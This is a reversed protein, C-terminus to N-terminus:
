FQAEKSHIFHCDCNTLICPQLSIWLQRLYHEHYLVCYGISHFSHGVQKVFLKKWRRSEYGHSNPFSALFVVECRILFVTLYQQRNFKSSRVCQVCDGYNLKIVNVFMGIFNIIANQIIFSGLIYRVSEKKRWYNVSVIPSNNFFFLLLM